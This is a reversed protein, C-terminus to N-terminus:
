FSKKNIILKLTVKIQDGVIEYVGGPTIADQMEKGEVFVIKAEGDGRSVTSSEDRLANEVFKSIELDDFTEKSNYLKPQLILLKVKALTFKSKEITSFRGIDFSRSETPAIIRPQQIGGIGKALEIVADEAYNFLANIDAYEGDRLKAGSLGQLLSYTLLGQGYRTAEYSQADAASGMLVYFGTRDKM